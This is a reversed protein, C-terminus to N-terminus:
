AVSTRARIVGLGALGALLLLLPAPLPVPAAEAGVLGAIERHIVRNPHLPDYFALADAIAPDCIAVGPIICPITANVVGYNGPNAILDDFTAAIDIRTIRRKGNMGDILEDLTANFLDSGFGALAAAPAPGLAFAPVKDLSPLNLVVVDRVGLGRLTTIGGAVASAAGIATAAVSDPTATPNIADLLDNAGFWLMAVPRRGREARDTAGFSALQDPLDPIQFPLGEAVDDNPVANAFNYAFNRAALGRGTFGAAVHEAWVPGNSRRGEFYPPSPPVAGGTDAFLNGSDTLSDGFFYASTYRQLTAAEAAAAGLLAAGALAVLCNRLM